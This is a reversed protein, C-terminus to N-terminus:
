IILSKNGKSGRSVSNWTHCLTTLGGKLRLLRNPLKEQLLSYALPILHRPYFFPMPFPNHKQLPAHQVLTVSSPVSLCMVFPETTHMDKTNQGETKFIIGKHVFSARRHFASESSEMFLLTACFFM